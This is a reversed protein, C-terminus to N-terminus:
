AVMFPAPDILRLGTVRRFEAIDNGFATLETSSLHPLKPWVAALERGLRVRRAPIVKVM